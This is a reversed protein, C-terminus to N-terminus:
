LHQNRIIELSQLAKTAVSDNPNLKLAKRLEGEGSEIAGQHSYVLGLERHLHASSACDGCLRLAEKFQVVAEPWNRSKAAEMGFDDFQLVPDTLRQSKQLSDLRDAYVTAQPSGVRGLLDALDHLVKLSNPNSDAATEWHEVAEQTKGLRLLAQGLLYHADSDRPDLQVLKTLVEAARSFDSMQAEALALVYLASPDDPALRCATELEAAAEQPKRSDYLV